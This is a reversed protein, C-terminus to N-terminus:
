AKMALMLGSVTFIVALGALVNNDTTNEIFLILASLGATIGIFKALKV